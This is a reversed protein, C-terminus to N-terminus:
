LCLCYEMIKGREFEDELSGCFFNFASRFGRIIKDYGWERAYLKPRM